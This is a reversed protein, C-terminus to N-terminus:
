VLLGSSLIAGMEVVVGINPPGFAVYLTRHITLYLSASYQRKAPMELVHCFTMGVLLATLVVTSFRCIRILMAGGASAATPMRPSCLLPCAEPCAQLGGPCHRSKWYSPRSREPCGPM